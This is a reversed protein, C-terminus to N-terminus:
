ALLPYLELKKHQRHGETSEDFITEASRVFLIGLAFSFLLQIDEQVAGHWYGASAEASIGRESAAVLTAAVLVVLMFISRSMGFPHLGSTSRLYREAQTCVAAAFMLCCSRLCLYIEAM